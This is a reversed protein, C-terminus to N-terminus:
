RPGRWDCLAKGAANHQKIQSVTGPTDKASWYIPEFAGCAVRVSDQKTVVASSTTACSATLIALMITGCLRAPVNRRPSQM